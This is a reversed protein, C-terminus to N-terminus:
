GAIDIQEALYVTLALSLLRLPSSGTHSLQFPSNFARPGLCVNTYKYLHQLYIVHAHEPPKSASATFFLHTTLGLANIRPILLM